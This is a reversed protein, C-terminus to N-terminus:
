KKPRFTGTKVICGKLSDIIENFHEPFAKDDSVDNLALALSFEFPTLAIKVIEALKEVADGKSLPRFTQATGDETCIIVTVFSQGAAHGVIHRIWSELLQSTYVSSYLSLYFTHALSGNPEVELVVEKHYGSISINRNGKEDDVYTFEYQYSKVEGNNLWDLYASAITKGARCNFGEGNNKGYSLPRQRYKVTNEVRDTMLAKLAETPSSYERERLYEAKVDIDSLVDLGGVTLLANLDLPLDAELKDDDSLVDYKTKPFVVGLSSRLLYQYPRTFFAIIDDLDLYTTEESLSFPWCDKLNITSGTKDSYALIRAADYDEGSYCPPLKSEKDYYQPSFSQLPHEYKKVEIDSSRMWDLMDLLPVAAPIKENKHIDVGVYSFSLYGRAGMAAKLFAFTDRDRSSVDFVTQRMGIIDFAPRYESQPFQGDNLGCIWVFRAPIACGNNLPAFRVADCSVSCRRRTSKVSALIASCFVDGGVIACGEDEIAMASVASAATTVIAKRLSALEYIADGDTRYLADIANLLAAQWEEPSHEGLMFLRLDNLITVFSNLAGVIRARNDEVNGCPLIKGIGSISVLAESDDRLGLLSDVIFRDLGRRWTFPYTTSDDDVGLIRRVDADDYGWHINNKGVMDRLTSFDDPSLGFKLRIEPVALLEFVSNVEFRNDRFAFIQALSHSIPTEEVIGGDISIPISASAGSAFVSEALPSYRAWDACLILADSLAADKNEKFFRHLADRAVELERRPSHCIHLEVSSGRLADFDKVVADGIWECGNEDLDLEASLVGKAGSALAGLLKSDATDFDSDSDFEAPEDGNRLAVKLAKAMERMSQRKSPNDLWYERSPNFNWFTVPITKAIKGLMLMYPWPAFAIDFAHISRYRTFGSSFAAAPDADDALAKEYDKVYTNSESEVLLRYLLAQWRNKGSPINGREWQALMGSRSELYSDFLEALRSALLFRRKANQRGDSDSIYSRLVSFEKDDCCRSLVADIRWSLINRAYPHESPRRSSSETGHAFAALWDNIFEPFPKFDFNAFIRNAGSKRKLLFYNKLWNATAIDGVLVCRKEFPDSSSDLECKEFMEDALLELRDSWYVDISKNYFDM